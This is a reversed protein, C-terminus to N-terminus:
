RLKIVGVELAANMGVPLLVNGTADEWGSKTVRFARIEGAALSKNVHGTRGAGVGTGPTPQSTMEFSLAGGSTNRVLVIADSLAPFKNGNVADVATMTVAVGEASWQNAAEVVPLLTEAM